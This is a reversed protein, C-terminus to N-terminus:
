LHVPQFAAHFIALHIFACNLEFMTIETFISIFTTCCLRLICSSCSGKYPLDAPFPPCKCPSLTGKVSPIHSSCLYILWDWWILHCLSCPSARYIVVQCFQSFINITHLYHLPSWMTEKIRQCSLRTSPHTNADTPMYYYYVVRLADVNIQLPYHPEDQQKHWKQTPFIPLSCWRDLM